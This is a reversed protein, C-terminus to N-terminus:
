HTRLFIALHSFLHYPIDGIIILFHTSFFNQFNGAYVADVLIVQILFPQDLFQERGDLM